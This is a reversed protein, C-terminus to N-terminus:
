RLDDDSRCCGSDVGGRVKEEMGVVERWPRRAEYVSM